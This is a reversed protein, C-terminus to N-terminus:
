ARPSGSPVMAATPPKDGNADPLSRAAHAEGQACPGRDVVAIQQGGCLRGLRQHEFPAVSRFTIEQKSEGCFLRPLDVIGQPQKLGRHLTAPVWLMQCLPRPQEAQHAAIAIRCARGALGQGQRRAIGSREVRDTAHQRPQAVVLTRDGRERLRHRAFGAIRVIAVIQRRRATKGSAYLGRARLVFGNQFSIRRMRARMVRQRDQRALGRLCVM